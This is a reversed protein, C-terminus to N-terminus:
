PGVPPPVFKASAKRGITVAPNSGTAPLLTGLAEGSVDVNVQMTGSIAEVHKDKAAFGGMRALNFDLVRQAEAKAEAPDMEYQASYVTGLADVELRCKIVSAGALAAADAASQLQSSYVWMRGFDLVLASIVVFVAMGVAAFVLVAGQEGRM